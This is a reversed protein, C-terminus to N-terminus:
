RKDNYLHSLHHPLLGLSLGLYVSGLRSNLGVAPRRLIQIKKRVGTSQNVQVTDIRDQRNMFFHQQISDLRREQETSYLVCLLERFLRGRNDRQGQLLFTSTSFIGEEITEEGGGGWEMYPVPVGGWSIMQIIPAPSCACKRFRIHHEFSLAAPRRVKERGACDMVERECGESM